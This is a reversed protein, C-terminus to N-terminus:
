TGPCGPAGTPKGTLPNVCPACKFGKTCSGRSIGLSQIFGFHLCDSLCVGAYDGTLFTSGTCAPGKFNPQLMENPVCLESGSVCKGDDDDLNGAQSSPVMTKPVCKARSTGQDICCATFTKAPQKPADCKATRCAGTEKGDLPSFCPACLEGTDCTDKSLQSAQQKINPISANICRGEAGGVASCTKPLYNGGAAISKEPACLGTPCPELMKAVDAPVLTTPVCRMGPGGGCAAFTNVDVLPPGVYPCAVNPTGGSSSTAGSSSGQGGDDCKKTAVPKGIECVGTPENNKLPNLCPACREDEACVDGEGRNLLQANKAVEPVCLSMCRGEGFPSKCTKPSAGGSKVLPDPVCVGAGGNTCTDLAKASSPPVKDKPICRATGGTACACKPFKAPDEPAMTVPAGDDTCIEGDTSSPSANGGKANGALPTGEIDAMSCAALLMSAVAAVVGFGRQWRTGM